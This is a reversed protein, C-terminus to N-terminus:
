LEEKKRNRAKAPVGVATSDSPIDTLVVSNAGITVNDGISIGGLLVAGAGIVVNDGIHPVGEDCLGDKWRCGITVNGFIRCNKGIVVKPHVM